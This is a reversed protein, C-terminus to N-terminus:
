SLGSFDGVRAESTAASRATRRGWAAMRRHGWGMDLQTMSAAAGVGGRRATSPGRGQTDHGTEQRTSTSGVDGNGVLLDHGSNIDIGSRREVEARSMMLDSTALGSCAEGAAGRAEKRGRINYAHTAFRINREPTEYAYQLHKKHINCFYILINFINCHSYVYTTLMTGFTEATERTKDPHQM